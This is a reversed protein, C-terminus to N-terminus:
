EEYAAENAHNPNLGFSSDVPLESERCFSLQIHSYGTNEHKICNYAHALPDARQKWNERERERKSKLTRLMNILILNFRETMRNSAANTTM